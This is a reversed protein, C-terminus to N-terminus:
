KYEAEQIDWIEKGIYREVEQLDKLLQEEKLKEEASLPKELKAKKILDFEAQIDRKLVAFGRKVSEKAEGLEKVFHLHKKRGHYAHFIIYGALGAVVLFLIIVIILYLTEYSVRSAGFQIATQRVTIRIQPSPPSLQDGIKSQVWLLYNGSLLFNDHRYFWDANKDSIVTHSVTEGNQLNQMYLIVQMQPAETKGGAYFIEENSINRSITDVFPPSIEIQGASTRDESQALAAIPKLYSIQSITQNAFAMNFFALSSGLVLLLLLFSKPGYKSKYRRLDELQEKIEKPLLKQAKGFALSDHWKKVRLSGYILVMLLFISGTWFWFWPVFIVNRVEFGDEGIFQFATTVISLRRFSEKYNGAKDYARVIIDYRGLELTPLVHLSQVEIFLPQSSKEEKLKLALSIIKLEYRDIGSNADSSDFQIVPQRRTTRSSPIIDILFDAPPATDIQVAFHTVGGWVENRHSKIHFYHVGDSLNKYTVSTKQGDAINDLSDVPVENLIYSYGDINEQSGWNLVANPNSYWNSQNPHTPSVVIPGAPAPLVLQYVGNSTNKLADTGLGDNLLVRSNDLFKLVATGVSKVRFTLSIVLGKSVNIGGPIGGQLDIRGTQNNFEPSATWIGIISKGASPSVLQLKDPSFSMLTRVTNVSQGETDLFISVDFTNGVTFTGTAPGVSLTAAQGQQPLLALSVSFLFALGVCFIRTQKACLKAETKRKIKEVNIEQSIEM